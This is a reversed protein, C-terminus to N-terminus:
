KKERLREVPFDDITDRTYHNSRYIDCRACSYNEQKRNELQMKQFEFWPDSNWIEQMNREEVHGLNTGGIYDVCCPSVDGNSRVAITTFAMPCAIRPTSNQKQDGIANYVSNQYYNEIFDVGDLKIWGHPKDIFVEDAVDEYMKVFRDNEPGYADLMKCSVFPKESGWQKKVEQLIRLNEHIVSIDIGSGTITKHKEKDSAYISIRAYDLQCQVMKESITRSLLSANTTTEIRDAIDADKAIKMMECFGPNMLPEGYLSLKLVKLKVGPWSKLQDIVKQFRSLPMNMRHKTFYSSKKISQFCQICKFNCMSSPEILVTFPKELPLVEVLNQRNTTKLQTYKIM